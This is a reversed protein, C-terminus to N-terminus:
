QAADQAAGLWNHGFRFRESQGAPNQIRIINPNSTGVNEVVYLWYNKGRKQAEEFERRTLAVSHQADFPGSIGKVECWAIKAGNKSVRYLDFGPNGTPTTQWNMEPETQLIHEIAKAEVAMNEQYPTPQCEVVDTGSSASNESHWKALIEGLRSASIDSFKKLLWVKTEAIDAERALEKVAQRKGQDKRNSEMRARDRKKGSELEQVRATGKPTLRWERGRRVILEREELETWDWGISIKADIERESFKLLLLKKKLESNIANRTGKGGVDHITLLRWELLEARKLQKPM